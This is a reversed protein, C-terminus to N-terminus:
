VVLMCPVALRAKCWGHGGGSAGEAVKVAHMAVLGGGDVDVGTAVDCAHVRAECLPIRTRLLVMQLTHVHLAHM